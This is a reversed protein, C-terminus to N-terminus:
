YDVTFISNKWPKLGKSKTKIAGSVFRDKELDIMQEYRCM